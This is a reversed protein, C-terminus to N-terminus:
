AAAKQMSLWGAINSRASEIWHVVAFLASGIRQSARSTDHHYTTMLVDLAAAAGELQCGVYSDLLKSPSADAAVEAVALDSLLGIEPVDLAGELRASVVRVCGAHLALRTAVASLASRNEDDAVQGIGRVLCGAAEILDAIESLRLHGGLAKHHAQGAGNRAKLQTQEM